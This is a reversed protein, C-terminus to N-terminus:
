STPAAAAWSPPSRLGQIGFKAGARWAQPSFEGAEERKALDQDLERRAFDVAAAKREQQEASLSFDFSEGQGAASSRAWGCGDVV